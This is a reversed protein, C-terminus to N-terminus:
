VANLNIVFMCIICGAQCLMVVFALLGQPSEYIEVDTPFYYLLSSFILVSFSFALPKSIGQFTGGKRFYRRQMKNIETSLWKVNYEM